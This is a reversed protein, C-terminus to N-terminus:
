AVGGWPPWTKCNRRFALLDEVIGVKTTRQRAAEADLYGRLDVRLKLLLPAGKRRNRGTKIPKKM